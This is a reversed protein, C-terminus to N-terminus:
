SKRQVGRLRFIIKVRMKNDYHSYGTSRGLLRFVGNFVLKKLWALKKSNTLLESSNVLELFLSNTLLKLFDLFQPSIKFFIVYDVAKARFQM